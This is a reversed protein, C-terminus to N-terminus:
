KKYIESVDVPLIGKKSVLRIFKVYFVFLTLYLIVFFSLSFIVSTNQLNSYSESIRLMGVVAWPQRGVETVLWGAIVAVFGTPTMYRLVILFKENEYFKRKKALYLGWAVPEFVSGTAPVVPAQNLKRGIGLEIRRQRM